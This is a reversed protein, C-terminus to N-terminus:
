SQVPWYLEFQIRTYVSSGFQAWFLYPFTRLLVANPSALLAVLWACYAFCLTVQELTIFQSCIIYLVCSVDTETVQFFDRWSFIWVLFVYLLFLTLMAHWSSWWLRHYYFCFSTLCFKLRRYWSESCAASLIVLSLQSTFLCCICVFKFFHNVWLWFFFSRFRTLLM